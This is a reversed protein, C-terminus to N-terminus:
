APPHVFGGDNPNLAQLTKAVLVEAGARYRHTLEVSRTRRPYDEDEDDWYRDNALQFARGCADPDGAMPYTM